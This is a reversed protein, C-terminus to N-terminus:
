SAGGEADFEDDMHINPLVSHAFAPVVKAEHGFARAQEAYGTAGAEFADIYAVTGNVKVVFVPFSISLRPDHEDAVVSGLDDQGNDLQCRNGTGVMAARLTQSGDLLDQAEGIPMPDTYAILQNRSNFVAVRRMESSPQTTGADSAIRPGNQANQPFTQNVATAPTIDQVQM